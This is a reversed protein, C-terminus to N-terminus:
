LASFFRILAFAIHILLSAILWKKLSAMQKPYKEKQALYIVFAILLFFLAFINLVLLPKDEKGKKKKGTVTNSEDPQSTKEIEENMEKQDDM